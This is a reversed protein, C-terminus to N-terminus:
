GRCRIMKDEKQAYMNPMCELMLRTEVKSDLTYHMDGVIAMDIDSGQANNADYGEM